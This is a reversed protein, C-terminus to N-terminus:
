YKNPAMIPKPKNIMEEMYAKYAAVIDAVEEESKEAVAHQVFPELINFGVFRFAVTMPFLTRSFEGNSAANSFAEKGSQTTISFLVSKNDPAMPSNEFIGPYAFGPQWVQELYSKLIAPFQFWYLPFQVISLASQKIKQQEQAIKQQDNEPIENGYYEVAPHHQALMEYLNSEVIDFGHQELTKRATDHLLHNLSDSRPHALILHATKKM